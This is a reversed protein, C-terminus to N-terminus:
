VISRVGAAKQQIVGQYIVLSITISIIHTLNFERITDLGASVVLITIWVFYVMIAILVSLSITDVFFM